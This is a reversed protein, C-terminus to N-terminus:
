AILRKALRNVANRQSNGIVHGYIGLTIRVDSHRLQDRVVTIPAGSEILESAVAHRIAHFGVRQMKLSELLPTLRYERLKNDSYPRKNRNCFILGLPNERYAKSELFMRLIKALADPM